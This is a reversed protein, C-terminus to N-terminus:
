ISRSCVNFPVDIGPFYPLPTPCRWSRQHSYLLYPYGIVDVIISTPVHKPTLQMPHYLYPLTSRMLPPPPWPACPNRDQQRRHFLTANVAFQAPPLSGGWGHWRHLSGHRTLSILPPLSILLTVPRTVLPSPTLRLWPSPHLDHHVSIVCHFEALWNLSRCVHHQQNCSFTLFWCFEVQVRDVVEDKM